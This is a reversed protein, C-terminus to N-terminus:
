GEVRLGVGEVRLGLVPHVRILLLDLLDVARELDALGVGLDQIGFESVRIGIGLDRVRIRSGM